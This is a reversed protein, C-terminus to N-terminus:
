APEYGEYDGWGPAQTVQEWLPWNAGTRQRVLEGPLTFLPAKGPKALAQGLIADRLAAATHLRPLVAHVRDAYGAPLEKASGAVDLRAGASVLAIEPRKRLAISDTSHLAIADWVVEVRDASVGERTLFEAAVDAGDVEFRQHRDGEASLGADHLVCGLFLLEDDYDRDPLVGDQEGLYRGYLYTRLSHNFLAPSELSRAYRMARAALDGKPFPLEDYGDFDDEYANDM